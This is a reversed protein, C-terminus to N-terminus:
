GINELVLIDNRLRSGLMPSSLHLVNVLTRVRASSGNHTSSCVRDPTTDCLHGPPPEDSSEMLYKIM